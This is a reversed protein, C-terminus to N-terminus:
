ASHNSIKKGDFQIGKKFISGVINRKVQFSSNEYFGRLDTMITVGPNLHARSINPTNEISYLEDQSQNIKQKIKKSIRNYDEIGIEQNM